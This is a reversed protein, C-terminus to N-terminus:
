SYENSEWKERSLDYLCHKQLHHGEAVKPHHFYKGTNYMKLKEMVHISRKNLVPTFSVISTLGLTTFGVQLVSLAAETAYGNNWYKKALRWGIEVCPACPLEYDPVNLGVFGIFDCSERVEVAWFGWGKKLILSQFKNAINDSENRTLLNPFFEMVNRDANIDAFVIRDEDRWQRLLLRDTKIEIVNEMSIYLYIDLCIM